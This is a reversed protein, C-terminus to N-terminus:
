RAYSPAALIVAAPSFLLCLLGDVSDLRCIWGEVHLCLGRGDSTTSLPIYYHACLDVVICKPMGNLRVYAHTNQCLSAGWLRATRSTSRYIDLGSARGGWRFTPVVMGSLQHRGQTFHGSTITRARAFHISALIRFTDLLLGFAWSSRPSPIPMLCLVWGGPVM